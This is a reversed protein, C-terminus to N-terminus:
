RHRRSPAPKWGRGHDGSRTRSSTRSFWAESTAPGVSQEGDSPLGRDHRLGRHGPSSFGRRPRAPGTEVPGGLLIPDTALAPPCYGGPQGSCKRSYGSPHHPRRHVLDASLCGAMWLVRGPQLTPRLRHARRCCPIVPSCCDPRSYPLAAHRELLLRRPTLALSAAINFASHCVNAHTLPVIKPRSTTGSTHLVLATDSPTAFRPGDAVSVETAELTFVGAEAEVAPVLEIVPVQRRRAVKRAPSDVGSAVILARANLDSIYFDFEEETYAPNLPACTAGAAVASFPLLWRRATRCCSPWATM